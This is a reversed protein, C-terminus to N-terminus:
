AEVGPRMKNRGRLCGNAYRAAEQLREDGCRREGTRRDNRCLMGRLEPWMRVTAEEGGSFGDPEIDRLTGVTGSTRCSQAL